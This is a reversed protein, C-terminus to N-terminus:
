SHLVWGGFVRRFLRRERTYFGRLLARGENKYCLVRHSEVGMRFTVFVSAGQGLAIPFDQEGFVAVSKGAMLFRAAGSPVARSQCGHAISNSHKLGRHLASLVWGM